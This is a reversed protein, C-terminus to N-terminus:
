NESSFASKSLPEMLKVGGEEKFGGRGEGGGGQFCNGEKVSSYIPKTQIRSLLLHIVPDMVNRGM